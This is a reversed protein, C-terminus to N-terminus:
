CAISAPFIRKFPIPRTNTRYEPVSGNTRTMTSPCFSETMRSTAWSNAPTTLAQILYSQEHLQESEPMGLSVMRNLVMCKIWGEVRQNDFRSARFRAGFISKFRFVANEALSQRTCGSAVRWAYRGQQQIQRLHTDRIGLKEPSNDCRRQTANRRPPIAAKAGRRGISEYCAKTDYAWRRLGSVGERYDADVVPLGGM